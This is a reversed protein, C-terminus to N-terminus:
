YSTLLDTPKRYNYRHDEMRSERRRDRTWEPQPPETYTFGTTNPTCIQPPCRLSSCGQSITVPSWSVASRVKLQKYLSFRNYTYIYESNKKGVGAEVIAWDKDLVALM